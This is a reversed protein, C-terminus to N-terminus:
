WQPESIGRRRNVFRALVFLFDSLRNLYVVAAPNVVDQAALAVVAREARRCVTRCVQLAAAGPDGGPLIFRTLPENEAEYRDIREELRAARDAGIRVTRAAAGPSADPPTALDSGLTLLDRQVERIEDTLALDRLLAEAFGLASNLEDVDGYAGVRPHDKPVRRGGFLGTEGGDGTRTYIKM